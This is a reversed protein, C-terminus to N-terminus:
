SEPIQLSAEILAFLQSALSGLTEHWNADQCTMRPHPGDYDRAVTPLDEVFGAAFRARWRRGDQGFSRYRRYNVHM